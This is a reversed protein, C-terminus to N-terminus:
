IEHLLLTVLLRCICAIFITQSPNAEAQPFLFGRLGFSRSALFAPFGVLMLSRFSQVSLSDTGPAAGPPAPCALCIGSAPRRAAPLWHLNADLDCKSMSCDHCGLCGHERLQQCLEVARAGGQSAKSVAEGCCPVLRLMVCSPPAGLSERLDLKLNCACVQEFSKVPVARVSRVHAGARTSLFDGWSKGYVFLPAPGPRYLLLSCAATAGSM